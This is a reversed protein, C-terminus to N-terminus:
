TGAVRSLLRNPLILGANGSLTVWRLSFPGLEITDSGNLDLRLEQVEVIPEM